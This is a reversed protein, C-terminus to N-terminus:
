RGGRSETLSDTKEEEEIEGEALTLADADTGGFSM